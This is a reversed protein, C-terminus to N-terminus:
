NWVLRTLVPSIVDKLPPVGRQHGQELFDRWGFARFKTVIFQLEQPLGCYFNRSELKCRKSVICCHSPCVSPCISTCVGLGHNLRSFCEAIARLSMHHCSTVFLKEM